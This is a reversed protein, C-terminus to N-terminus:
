NGGEDDEILASFLFVLCILAFWISFVYAPLNKEFIHIFPWNFLLIGVFFLFLWVDRKM